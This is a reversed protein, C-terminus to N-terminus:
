KRAMDRRGLDEKFIGRGPTPAYYIIQEELRTIVTWNKELCM